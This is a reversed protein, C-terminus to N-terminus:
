ASKVESRVMRVLGLTVPIVVWILVSVALKAWDDGQMQGQFLPATTVSTDAWQAVTRMWSIAGLMTWVIPLFLYAVIAGPTNQILAGFAFGMGVNILQAVLIGFLVQWGVHWSPESGRVAQTLVTFVAATAAGLLMIAMSTLLVAVLKSGAVRTRKPELTFTVLGTRQSWETTVALIGLIPLLFSQPIITAQLFNEFDKSQSAKGTFVLIGVVITTIAAIAILLWRGSRTDVLKRLEVKVLRTFPIGSVDDKALRAPLRVGATQREHTQAPPAHHSHTATTNM